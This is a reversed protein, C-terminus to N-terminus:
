LSGREDDGPRDRRDRHALCLAEITPIAPVLGAMVIAYADDACLDLSAM